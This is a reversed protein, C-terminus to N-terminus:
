SVQVRLARLSQVMLRLVCVSQIQTEGCMHLLHVAQDEHIAFLQLPPHGLLRQRYMPYTRIAPSGQRAEIPSSAGLGESVQYTLTPPYEPLGWKILPSPSPQPFSQLLTHSPYPYLVLYIFFLLMGQTFPRQAHKHSTIKIINVSTPFGLWQPRYWEKPLSDRARHPFSLSNLELEERKRQSLVLTVLQRPRRVRISQM